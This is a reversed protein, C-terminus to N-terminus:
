CRNLTSRLVFLLTVLVVAGLVGAFSPSILISVASRWVAGFECGGLAGLHVWCARVRVRIASHLLFSCSLYTSRPLM